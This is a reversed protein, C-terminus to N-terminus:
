IKLSNFYQGQYYYHSNLYPNLILRRNTLSPYQGVQQQCFRVLNRILIERFSISASDSLWYMSWCNDKSITRKFKFFILLYSYGHIKCIKKRFFLLKSDTCACSSKDIEAKSTNWRFVVQDFIAISQSPLLSFKMITNIKQCQCNDSSQYSIFFCNKKQKVIM